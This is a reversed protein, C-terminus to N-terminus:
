VNETTEYKYKATSFALIPLFIFNLFLMGFGFATSKSFNYSIKFRVLITLIPVAILDVFPILYLLIYWPSIKAIKFVIVLNYIPILSAWGNYGDKKFLQWMAILKIIGIIIFFMYYNYVFHEIYGYPEVLANDYFYM